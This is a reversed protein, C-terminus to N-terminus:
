PSPLRASRRRALGLGTAGLALLTLTTPAPVEGQGQDSELPASFNSVTLFGPGFLNDATVVRYGIIDGDVVAISESGTAGSQDNDALQTYVGNLLWGANDFNDTDGSTYLWDFSWTGAAVAAITFDTLGVQVSQNDGGIVIVSVPVGITDVTGDSNTNTLTWNAVDYPGSFDAAAVAPAALALVPAAAYSLLRRDLSPRRSASPAARGKKAPPPTQAITM